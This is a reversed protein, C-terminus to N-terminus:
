SMLLGSAQQNANINFTVQVSLGQSNKLVLTGDLQQTLGRMLTIGMSATTNIDFGEPLGSGNDSVTLQCIGNGSWKLSISITGKDHDTFAYKMANSIAENLILGVPVAQVMDLIIKETDLVFDIRKVSLLSQRMYEVLEHIYWSIDISSMNESQYLKLHILSLAYMRNQSNRIALIANENDLYASQTNLLSIVIQLNNKVRHHVEKLLWEKERILTKLRDNQHNIEAQKQQLRRNNQQKIRNHILALLVLMGGGAIIVQVLVTNVSVTGPQQYAQQKRLQGRDETAAAM